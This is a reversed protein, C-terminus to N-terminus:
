KNKIKTTYYSSIPEFCTTLYFVNTLVKDRRCLLIYDEYQFIRVKASGYKEKFYDVMNTDNQWGLIEKSSKFASWLEKDKLSQGKWEEKLIREYFRQRFHMTMKYVPKTDKIMM